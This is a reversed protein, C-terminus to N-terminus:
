RSDWNDTGTDYKYTPMFNVPGEKFDKFVNELRRQINLQDQELIPKFARRELYQKVVNVDLGTIRYNLDGLWFM